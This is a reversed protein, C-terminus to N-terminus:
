AAVRDVEALGDATQRHQDLLRQSKIREAARQVHEDVAVAVLDLHQVPVTVAETTLTGYVVAKHRSGSKRTSATEIQVPALISPSM